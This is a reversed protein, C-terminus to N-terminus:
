ERQWSVRVFRDKKQWKIKLDGKFAKEVEKGIREALHEDTTEIVLGGGARKIELIRATVNQHRGNKEVRGVLHEVEELHSDMFAGGLTVIGEVQKKEIRLCGPCLKMEKKSKASKRLLEKDPDAVWRHGDYIAGCEPCLRM